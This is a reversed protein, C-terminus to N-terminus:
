RAGHWDCGSRRTAITSRVFPIQSRAGGALRSFFKTARPRFYAIRSLPPLDTAPLESALEEELQREKDDKHIGITRPRM